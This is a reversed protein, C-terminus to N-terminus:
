RRARRDELLLEVASVGPTTKIGAKWRAVDDLWDLMSQHPEAHGAADTDVEVM